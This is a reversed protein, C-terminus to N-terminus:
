RSIVANMGTKSSLFHDIGFDAWLSRCKWASMM